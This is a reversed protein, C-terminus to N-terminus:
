KEEKILTKNLLKKIDENKFNLEQMSKIYSDTLVMGMEQKTLEMKQKTMAVYRGNTRDTYIFGLEELESLAKQVTNPNIGYEQAMERVSKIRDNEKLNGNVIQQKIINILQLYIPEIDNFKYM